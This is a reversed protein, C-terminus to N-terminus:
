VFVNRCRVEDVLAVELYKGQNPQASIEPFDNRFINPPFVVDSPLM